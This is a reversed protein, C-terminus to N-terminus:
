GTSRITNSIKKALQETSGERLPLSTLQAVLEDLGSRVVQEVEAAKRADEAAIAAHLEPDGGWDAAVRASADGGIAIRLIDPPRVFGEERLM